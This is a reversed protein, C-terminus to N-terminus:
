ENKVYRLKKLKPLYVCIDEVLVMKNNSDLLKGIILDEITGAETLIKFDNWSLPFGKFYVVTLQSITCRKIKTIWLSLLEDSTIIKNGLWIKDKLSNVVANSNIPYEKVSDKFVIEDGRHLYDILFLRFKEPFYKCTFYLKKVVKYSANALIFKIMEYPFDFKQQYMNKFSIVIAKM